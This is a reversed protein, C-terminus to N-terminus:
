EMQYLMILPMSINNVNASISALESVFQVHKERSEYIWCYFGLNFSSNTFKFGSNSLQFPNSISYNKRAGIHIDLKRLASFGRMLGKLQFPM